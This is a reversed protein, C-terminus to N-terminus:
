EPNAEVSPQGLGEFAADMAEELALDMAIALLPPSALDIVGGVEPITFTVRTAGPEMVASETVEESITAKSRPELLMNVNFSSGKVAPVEEIAAQEEITELTETQLAAPQNELVPEGGETEVIHSCRLKLTNCARCGAHRHKCMKCDLRHEKCMDCPTRDCGEVEADEDVRDTTM